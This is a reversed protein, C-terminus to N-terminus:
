VTSTSAMRPLWVWTAQNEASLISFTLEDPTSTAASDEAPKGCASLALVAAGAALTILTRRIM